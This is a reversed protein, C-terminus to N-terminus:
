VEKDEDKDENDGSKNAGEEMEEDEEDILTTRTLQSRGPLPALGIAPSKRTATARKGGGKGGMKPPM